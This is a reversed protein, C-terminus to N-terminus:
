GTIILIIGFMIASTGVLTLAVLAAITGQDFGLNRKTRKRTSMQRGKWQNLWLGLMSLLRICARHDESNPIFPQDQILGAASDYYSTYYWILYGSLLCLYICLYGCLHICLYICLLM